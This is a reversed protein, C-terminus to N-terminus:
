QSTTPCAMPNLRLGHEHAPRASLFPPRRPGFALGPRGLNGHAERPWPPVAPIRMAVAAWWCHREWPCFTGSKLVRSGFLHSKSVVQRADQGVAKACDLFDPPRCLALGAAWTPSVSRARRAEGFARRGSLRGGYCSPCWVERASVRGDHVPQNVVDAAANGGALRM